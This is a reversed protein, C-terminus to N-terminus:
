ANLVRVYVRGRHTDKFSRALKIKLNVSDTVLLAKNVSV